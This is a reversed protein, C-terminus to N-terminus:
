LLLSFVKILCKKICHIHGVNVAVENLVKFVCICKGSQASSILHCLCYINKHTSKPVFFVACFIFNEILSKKMLHSLIRLKKRIQDYKSFFNNVSFKMKQAIFAAFFNVFFNM